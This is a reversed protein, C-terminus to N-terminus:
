NMVQGGNCLINQGNIGNARDSALFSVMNAIDEAPQFRGLPQSMLQYKRVLWAPAHMEKATEKAIKDQMPTIVTGPCYANVTIHYPKLADAMAKTMGRISWKTTTYEFTVPTERFASQSAANLIKGGEPQNKMIEVAEKACLFMSIVNVDFTKRLEEAHIKDMKRIPCIGANNVLVDLRGFHEKIRAFIDSVADERSVDGAAILCDVGNAKVEACVEKLSEARHANVVIDFGDGALKLAIAKGIGAGSGTVFAVKRETM